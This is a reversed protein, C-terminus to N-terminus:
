EDLECLCPFGRVCHLHTGLSCGNNQDRYARARQAAQLRAKEGPPINAYDYARLVIPWQNQMCLRIDEDILMKVQPSEIFQAGRAIIQDVTLTVNGGPAFKTISLSGDAKAEFHIKSGSLCIREAASIADNIAKVGVDQAAVNTAIMGSAIVLIPRIRM